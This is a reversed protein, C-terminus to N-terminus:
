EKNLRSRMELFNRPASVAQASSRATANSVHQREASARARSAVVADLRGRLYDDTRSDADSVSEALAMVMIQRDSMGNPDADEPLLPAANVLLEARSAALKAVDPAEGERDEADESEETQGEETQQAAEALAATVRSVISGALAEVDLPQTETERDTDESKQSESIAQSVLQKLEEDTMQRSEQNFIRVTPGARGRDVIAVHNVELPGNMRHSYPQGDHVGEAEALAGYFGISTEEIGREVAAIAAPSTLLMSAAMHGGEIERVDDGVHGVALSAHNDVTVDDSPHGFTVPKMRVSALTRDDFVTDRDFLVGHSREADAGSLGLEAGSFDLVGTRMLATDARLYGERTRQRTDLRSAARLHVRRSQGSNKM